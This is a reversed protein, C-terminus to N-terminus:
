KSQPAERIIESASEETQKFKILLAVFVVGLSCGLIAGGLFLYM